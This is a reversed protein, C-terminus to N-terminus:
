GLYSSLVEILKVREIPKSIHANMGAKKSEEIDHQMANATLAIIPTKINRKKRIIRSAEYGDMQPMQIDMLILDYSADSLAELAQIGNEVRDIVANTNSLLSRFAQAHRHFSLACILVLFCFTTIRTLKKFGM